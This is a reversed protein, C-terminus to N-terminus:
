EGIKFFGVGFALHWAWLPFLLAGLILTLRKM